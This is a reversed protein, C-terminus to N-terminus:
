SSVVFGVVVASVSVVDGAVVVRVVGTVVVVWAGVPWTSTMIIAITTAAIAITAPPTTYLRRLLLYPRQNRIQGM